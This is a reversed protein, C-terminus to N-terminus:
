TIPLSGETYSTKVADRVDPFANKAGLIAEIKMKSLAFM